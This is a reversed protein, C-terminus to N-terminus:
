KRRRRWRDLWGGGNDIRDERRKAIRKLIWLAVPIGLSVLLTALLTPTM